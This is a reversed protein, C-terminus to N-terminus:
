RLEDARNDGSKQSSLYQCIEMELQVAQRETGEVGDDATSADDHHQPREVSKETEALSPVNNTGLM